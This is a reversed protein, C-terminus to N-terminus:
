PYKISLKTAPIITDNKVKIIPFNKPPNLVAFTIIEDIIGYTGPNMKVFEILSKILPSAVLPRTPSVIDKNIENARAIPTATGM